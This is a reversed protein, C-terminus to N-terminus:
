RGHTDMSLNVLGTLVNALLFVLMGNGNLAYIWCDVLLLLGLAGVNFAVMWVVFGANAMRRSIPDLQTVEWAYHVLYSLAAGTLVMGSGATRWDDLSDRKRALWAGTSNAFLLIAAYGFLSLIGHIFWSLFSCPGVTVLLALPGDGLQTASKLLAILPGVAALTFFFNWHVGYEVVHVDYNTAKTLALRLFGLIWLPLSRRASAFVSPNTSHTSSRLGSVLGQAFVAIGVGLDM